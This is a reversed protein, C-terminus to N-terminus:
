RCRCRPRCCPGALRAAPRRVRRSAVHDGAGDLMRRTPRSGATPAVPRRRHGLQRDSLSPSTSGASRSRAIRGSVRSTEIMAALLTVRCSGASPRTPRSRGDGRRATGCRRPAPRRALHREVHARLRDVQERKRCVLQVPRLADPRQVDAFPTSSHGSNGPPPWSRPAARARLVHGADDPQASRRFDGRGLHGVLGGSQDRM